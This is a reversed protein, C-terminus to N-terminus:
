EDAARLPRSLRDEMAMACVQDILDPEDAFLGILGGEDKLPAEESAEAAEHAVREVLRLRDSLPLARVATLIHDISTM